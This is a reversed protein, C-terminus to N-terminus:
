RGQGKVSGEFAEVKQSLREAKAPLLEDKSDPLSDIIKKVERFDSDIDGLRDRLAGAMRDLELATERFADARRLAIRLGLNGGAVSDIDKKLRYIPGAVKWTILWSVFATSSATFLVAFLSLYFLHPFVMDGLSSEYWVMRWKMDEIEGMVLYNFLGTAFVMGMLCIAVFALIFRGQFGTDVIYKRRM